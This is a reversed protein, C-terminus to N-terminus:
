YEYHLFTKAELCLVSEQYSQEILLEICWTDRSGQLVLRIYPMIGAAIKHFGMRRVKGTEAFRRSRRGIKNSM